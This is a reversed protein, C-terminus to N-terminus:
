LSTDRTSPRIVCPTELTGDEIPDSWLALREIRRQRAIDLHITTEVM